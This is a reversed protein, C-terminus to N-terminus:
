DVHFVSLLTREYPTLNQEAFNRCEVCTVCLFRLSSPMPHLPRVGSMMDTDGHKLPLGFTACCRGLGRGRVSRATVFLMSRQLALNVLAWEGVFNFTKMRWKSSLYRRQSM